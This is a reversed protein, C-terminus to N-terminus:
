KDGRGAVELSSSCHPFPVSSPTHVHTLLLSDLCVQGADPCIHKHGLRFAWIYHEFRDWARSDKALWIEGCQWQAGIFTRGLSTGWSHKHHHHPADDGPWSEKKSDWWHALLYGLDLITYTLDPSKSSNNSGTAGREGNQKVKVDGQHGTHGSNARSLKWHSRWKFSVLPM